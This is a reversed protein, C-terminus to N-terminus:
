THKSFATLTLSISVKLLTATYEYVKTTSTWFAGGFYKM